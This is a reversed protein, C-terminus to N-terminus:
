QKRQYYFVTGAQQKRFPVVSDHCSEAKGLFLFGGPVLADALRNLVTQRAQDTLYMLLNRCLIMDYSLAPLPDNLLNRKFFATGTTVAPDLLFNGSATRKMFRNQFHAPVDQIRHQNYAGQRAHHICSASIDVGDITFRDAQENDALLLMRLSYVEEGTACGASLFRITGTERPHHERVASCLFQLTDLERFFRTEHTTALDLVKERLEQDAALRRALDPLNIRLQECLRRFRILLVERNDRTVSLGIDRSLYTAITNFGPYPDM